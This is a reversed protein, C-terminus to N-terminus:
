RAWCTLVILWSTLHENLSSHRGHVFGVSIKDWPIVGGLKIRDTFFLVCSLALPTTDVSPGVSLRVIENWYVGGGGGGGKSSREPPPIIIFLAVLGTYIYINYIYIYIYILVTCLFCCKNEVWSRISKLFHRCKQSPFHIKGPPVQVGVKPNMGSARGNSSGPGSM